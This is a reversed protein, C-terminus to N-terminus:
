VASMVAVLRQAEATEFSPLLRLRLCGGCRLVRCYQRHVQRDRHRQPPGVGPGARLRGAQDAQDHLVRQAGGPRGHHRHRRRCMIHCRTDPHSWITIMACRLSSIALRVAAHLCLGAGTTCVCALVLPSPVRSPDIEGTTSEAYTYDKRSVPLNDDGLPAGYLAGYAIFRQPTKSGTAFGCVCCRCRWMM